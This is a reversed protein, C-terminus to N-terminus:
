SQLYGQIEQFLRQGTAWQGSKLQVISDGLLQERESHSAKLLLYMFVRFLKDNKFIANDLIKRHLKIWGTSM